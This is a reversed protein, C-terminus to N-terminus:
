KKYKMSNQMMKRQEQIYDVRRREIRRGEIKEKYRIKELNKLYKKNGRIIKDSLSDSNDNGIPYSTTSRVGTETNFSNVYRKDSSGYLSMCHNCANGESDIEVSSSDLRLGKSNAWKVDDIQNQEFFALKRELELRKQPDNECKKIYAPSIKCYGNRLCSYKERLQTFLVKKANVKSTQIQRSYANNNISNIM